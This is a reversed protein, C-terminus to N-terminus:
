VVLPDDGSSTRRTRGASAASRRATVRYVTMLGNGFAPATVHFQLDEAGQSHQGPGAEGRGLPRGGRGEGHILRGAARRHGHDALWNRTLVGKMRLTKRTWPADCVSSVVKGM